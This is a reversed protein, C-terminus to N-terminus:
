GGRSPGRLLVDVVRDGARLRARNTQVSVVTWGGFSQGARLMRSREGGPTELLVAPQELDLIVGVLTLPQLEQEKPAEAEPPRRRPNFLPRSLLVEARVEPLQHPGTAVVAAPEVAPLTDLLGTRQVAVGLWTAGALASLATFGYLM